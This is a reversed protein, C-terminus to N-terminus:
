APAAPSATPAAATLQKWRQLTLNANRAIWDTSHTALREIAARAEPIGIKLLTDLMVSYAANGSGIVVELFPICSRDRVYALAWGAEHRQEGYQTTAQEALDQCTRTLRTEDRPLVVLELLPETAFDTVPPMRSLMDPGVRIRIQYTGPADFDFWRNLVAQQRYTERPALEFLGTRSGGEVPMPRFERVVGAPSTVSFVFVGIRDWGMDVAVPAGVRNELRYTFIVPEHLSVTQPVDFSLTVGRPQSHAVNGAAVVVTLIALLATM